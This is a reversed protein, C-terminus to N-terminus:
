AANVSAPKDVLYWLSLKYFLVKNNDLERLIKNTLPYFAQKM